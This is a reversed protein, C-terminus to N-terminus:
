FLIIILPKNLYDIIKPDSKLRHQYIRTTKETIAYLNNRESYNKDIIKLPVEVGAKEALVKVADVFDLGEFDMIFGIASGSKGCGFCHFFQKQQSVTFSPSNENHFPCLGAYDKGAKKLSVRPAIVDYIDIRNLLDEIFENAISAAV